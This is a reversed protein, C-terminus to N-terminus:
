HGKTAKAVGKPSETIKIIIYPQGKDYHVKRLNLNFIAKDDIELPPFVSDIIQKAFNDIDLRRIEHGKTFFSTHVHIRVTLLGGEYKSGCERLYKQVIPFVDKRYQKVEPALFVGGNRGRQYITNVSAIKGDLRMDLKLM